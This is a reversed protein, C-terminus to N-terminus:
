FTQGDAASAGFEQDGILFDFSDRTQEPAALDIQRYMFENEKVMADNINFVFFLKQLHAGFDRLNSTNFPTHNNSFSNPLGLGATRKQDLTLNRMRDNFRGFAEQNRMISQDDLKLLCGFSKPLSTAKFIHATQMHSRNQLIQSILNKNIYSLACNLM